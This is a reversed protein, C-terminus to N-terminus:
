LCVVTESDTSGCGYLVSLIQTDEGKAYVLLREQVFLYFVCFILLRLAKGPLSSSMKTLLM